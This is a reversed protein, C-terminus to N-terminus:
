SIGFFTQQTLPQSLNYEKAKCFLTGWQSLNVHRAVAAARRLKLKQFWYQFVALSRRWIFNHYFSTNIFIKKVNAWLHIFNVYFTRADWCATSPKLSRLIGSSSTRIHTRNFNILLNNVVFRLRHAPLTLNQSPISRKVRQPEERAHDLIPSLWELLSKKGM